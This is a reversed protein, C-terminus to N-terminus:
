SDKYFWKGVYPLRQLEKKEVRMILLAFLGLLILGSGYYVPKYYGSQHNINRAVLEHIIYMLACIVLYTVLKKKAYPVPYFKQGQTYSIIMMFAYCIFTAWASGTYRFSPILVINLVITIIAGAITIYAGFM